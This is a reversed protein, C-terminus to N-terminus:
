PLRDVPMDNINSRRGVSRVVCDACREFCFIALMQQKTYASIGSTGDPRVEGRWGIHPRASQDFLQWANKRSYLAHRLDMLEDYNQPENQLLWVIVDTPLGNAFRSPKKPKPALHRRHSMRSQTEGFTMRQHCQIEGNRQSNPNRASM